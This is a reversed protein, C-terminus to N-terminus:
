STPKGQNTAGGTFGSGPVRLRQHTSCPMRLFADRQALLTRILTPLAAEVELKSKTADAEVSLVAATTCDCRAGFYARVSGSSGRPDPNFRGLPVLGHGDPLAAAVVSALWERSVVHASDDKM